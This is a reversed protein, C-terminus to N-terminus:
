FTGSLESKQDLPFDPLDGMFRAHLDVPSNDMPHEHKELDVTILSEGHKGDKM